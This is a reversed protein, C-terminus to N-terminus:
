EENGNLITINNLDINKDSSQLVSNYYYYLCLEGPNNIIEKYTQIDKAYLFSMSLCAILMILILIDQISPKSFCLRKLNQKNIGKAPKIISNCYPCLEDVANWKNNM